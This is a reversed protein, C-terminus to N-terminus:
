GILDIPGLCKGEQEYLIETRTYEVLESLPHPLFARVIDRPRVTGRQGAPVSIELTHADGAPGAACGACSRSNGKVDTISGGSDFLEVLQTELWRAPETILEDMVLERWDAGGARDLLRYWMEDEVALQEEENLLGSLLGSFSHFGLRYRYIAQVPLKAQRRACPGATGLIGFGRPFLGDFLDTSIDVPETFEIDFFEELGEFGVPLSPGMSLRPHPRFGKTYSLPLGTRRLARQIIRITELHTIFRAPGRKEYLIRYRHIAIGEGSSNGPEPELAVGTSGRGEETENDPGSEEKKGSCAGCGVCNDERCDPTLEEEFAKERQRLLFGTRVRPEFASWPLPEDAAFGGTLEEIDLGQEDIASKWLDLRLGDRWSDFRCGKGYAALLVPWLRRDGRSLIGELISIGPDRLDLQVRRGKIRKALYAEKRELEDISCQREWQFPTHPKPVFPSISIRLKFRGGPIRLVREVLDVIGALDENRETPLGIMFYLKLSQWGGEIVKRCGELIEEDTMWKNIVRRLRETGAEPALTFGSKKVGASAMVISETVTEPRLSPMALSTKRKRLEPALRKFLEDLCSYDSSSLSLLSVEDWGSQDLGERVAEVIEGVDRERRPRYISGAHCFRCGRTCGRMIEVSLRDHVISASPVIPSRSLDGPRFDYVRFRAAPTIGEVYVGDIAALAEKRQTRGERAGGMEMLARIAEPLSEEGDGLFVADVAKLIPLPNSCCPGGVVVLPDSEKRKSTELSLGALDLALLMNTYHLEYTLSSGLLDFRDAPTGTQWSRLVEGGARMLDEMDPWPAFAFEVGVGKLRALRDYLFRIGQHSMGIEYVDPFVLLVNYNGEKFGQSSLNLENDVYRSPKGVFPLISHYRSINQLNM